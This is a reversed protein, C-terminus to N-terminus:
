NGDQVDVDINDNNDDDDDHDDDLLCRPVDPLCRPPM